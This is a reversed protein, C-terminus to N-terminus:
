DGWLWVGENNLSYWQDNLIKTHIKEEEALKTFIAKGAPDATEHALKAYYAAANKEDNIAKSLIALVDDKSDEERAADKGEPAHSTDSFRTGQYVTWGKGQLLSDLLAKLNNYHNLEFAALQSFMNKGKPSAAKQASQSYYTHAEMEADMATRIADLTTSQTM